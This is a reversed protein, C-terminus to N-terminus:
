KNYTGNKTFLTVQGDGFCVKYQVGNNDEKADKALEELFNRAWGINRFTAIETSEYAEGIYNVFEKYVKIQELREQKTM